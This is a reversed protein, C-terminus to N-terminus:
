KRQPHAPVAAIPGEPKKHFKDLYQSFHQTNLFSSIFGRNAPSCSNVFAMRIDEKNAVSLDFRGYHEMVRQLLWQLYGGLTKLASHVAELQEQTTHYPNYPM